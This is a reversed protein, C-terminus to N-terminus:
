AAPPLAAGARRPASSAPRLRTAPAGDGRGVAGAEGGALGERRLFVAIAEAALAHALPSPHPDTYPVLALERGRRGEYVPLLDLVRFGLEGATAAVTAHVERYPYPRLDSDFIPFIVVAAPIGQQRALKALRELSLRWAAFSEPDSYLSRYYARLRPRLRLSDVALRARAFLASHTALWTEFRGEPQWSELDPRDALMRATPRPEADNLCFGLVLVDPDALELDSKLSRVLARTNWGPQSYSVVEVRWPELERALRAPYAEDRRVGHGFTFSDGVVLVRARVDDGENWRAVQVGRLYIQRGVPEPPLPTLRAALRAGGEALALGALAGLAVGALRYRWSRM